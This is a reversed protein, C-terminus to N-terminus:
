ALLADDRRRQHGERGAPGASRHPVHRDDPGYGQQDGRHRPEAFTTKKLRSLTDYEYATARFNDDTVTALRHNKDYAFEEDITTLFNDIPTGVTLAREYKTLRSALDYTWRAPHGEADTRFALNSRSDFEFTTTLINSANLRDIEKTSTRRNLADYVFQTVFTESSGTTPIQTDAVQTVNGNADYAYTVVNGAADTLTLLRGATDYTRATARNLPDKVETVLHGADRKITTTPYTTTLGTGFRDEVLQWMRDIQDFGYSSRMMLASGSSYAAVQTVNSNKDWALTTYHGLANTVRERRNFLDYLYTSANGRGDTVKSRRGNDDYDIQITSADATGFGRTAKFLLQREDYEFTEQNGEPHTIKTLLGSGDFEYSTTATVAATLRVTKATLRSILDFAYTTDIWPTTPDVAGKRDINEVEAKTVNRDADYTLKTRYSLPSPAQIQTVYGEADVTLATANNRPDTISTVNGFQDYAFTTTVNLGSPDRRISQLYGTQSGATHYALTTVRGAGDTASTIRGRSDWALTETITQSAPSSVTPRNVQTTNGSGDVTYTTINGKPDTYKTVQNYAGLFEWAQVLDTSSTSSTNTLKRRVETLNLSGDYTFDDRNGRPYVRHQPLGAATVVQTMVYSAPESPRLGRTFVEIRTPLAATGFTWETVNGSRDTVQAKQASPTYNISYSAPGITEITALDNSGYTLTQVKENRGSGVHVLNDKLRADANNPAYSFWQMRGTPFQTSTPTRTWRLRGLYDYSFSWTRGGFDTVSSLRGTTDYTLTTYRGLTDTIGVLKDSLWTYTITNGYRDAISTRYGAADFTSVTGFRNTLSKTGGAILLNMDYHFPKVYTGGTQWAYTDLRGRGNVYKEDSNPQTVLRVDQNLSWGNGYRYDWNLRSRYTLTLELDLGVGPVSLVPLTYVEEGTSYMVMSVTNPMGPSVNNYEPYAISGRAMTEEPPCDACLVGEWEPIGPNSGTRTPDLGGPIGGLGPDIHVGKQDYYDWIDSGTGQNAYVLKVDDLTGAPGMWTTLGGYPNVNINPPLNGVNMPLTPDGVDWINILVGTTPQTLLIYLFNGATSVDVATNAAYTAVAPPAFLMTTLDLSLLYSPGGGIQSASVYAYAAAYHTSVGSFTVNPGGGWIAPAFSTMTTRNFVWLSATGPANNGVAVLYGDQAAPSGAKTKKEVLEIAAAFPMPTVSAVTGNTFFRTLWGTNADFGWALTGAVHNDATIVSYNAAPNNVMTVVVSTTPNVSLIRGTNTGVIIRGTTGYWDMDRATNVAVGLPITYLVLNTTTSVVSITSTGSGLVYAQTGDPKVLTDVTNTGTPLTAASAPAPGTMMMMALCYITYLVIVPRLRRVEGRFLETGSGFQSHRRVHSM